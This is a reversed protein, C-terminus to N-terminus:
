SLYSTDGAYCCITTGNDLFCLAKLAGPLHLAQIREDYVVNELVDSFIHPLSRLSVIIRGYM